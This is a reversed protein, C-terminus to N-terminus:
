LTLTLERASNIRFMNLLTLTIKPAALKTHCSLKCWGLTLKSVMLFHLHLLLHLHLCQPFENLFCFTRALKKQQLPLELVIETQYNPVSVVVVALSMVPNQAKKEARFDPLKRWM